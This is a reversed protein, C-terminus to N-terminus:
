RGEGVLYTWRPALFMCIDYIQLFAEAASAKNTYQVWTVSNVMKIEKQRTRIYHVTITLFPSSPSLNTSLHTVEVVLFTKHLLPFELNLRSAVMVVVRTEARVVKFIQCDDGPFLQPHTQPPAGRYCRSDPYPKLSWVSFLSVVVRNSM